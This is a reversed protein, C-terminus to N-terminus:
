RAVPKHISPTVVPEIRTVRMVASDNKNDLYVATGQLHFVMSCQACEPACQQVPQQGCLYLADLEHGPLTQKVHDLTMGPIIQGAHIARSIEYTLHPDGAIFYGLNPRDHQTMRVDIVQPNSGKGKLYIVAGWRSVILGRCSGCQAPCQTVQAADADCWLRETEDGEGAIAGLVLRVEELTMERVIQKNRIAEIIRAPRGAHDAVYADLNSEYVVRREAEQEETGACGYLAMACVFLSGFWRNIM